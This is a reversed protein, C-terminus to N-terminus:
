SFKFSLCRGTMDGADLIALDQRLACADLVSQYRAENFPLPSGFTVNARITAHELGLIFSGAASIPYKQPASM